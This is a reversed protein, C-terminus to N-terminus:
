VRAWNYYFRSLDVAVPARVVDEEWVGREERIGKVDCKDVEEEWL